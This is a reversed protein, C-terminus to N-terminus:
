QQPAEKMVNEQLHVVDFVSLQTYTHGPLQKQEGHSIYRELFGTLGNIPCLSAMSIGEIRELMEHVEIAFEHPPEGDFWVLRFRFRQIDEVEFRPGHAYVPPIPEWTAQFFENVSGLYRHCTFAESSPGLTCPHSTLTLARPPEAFRYGTWWEPYQGGLHIATEAACAYTGGCRLGHLLLRHPYRAGLEHFERQKPYPEYM